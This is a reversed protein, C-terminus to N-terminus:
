KGENQVKGNSTIEEVNTIWGERSLQCSIVPLGEQYHVYYICMWAGDCDYHIRAFPKQDRYLIQETLCPAEGPTYVVIFRLREERDRYFANYQYGTPPVSDPAGFSHGYVMVGDASHSIGRYFKISGDWPLPLVVKTPLEAALKKLTNTAQELRVAFEPSRPKPSEAM